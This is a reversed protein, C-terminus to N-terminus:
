RQMRRVTKRYREVGPPPGAQRMAQVVHGARWEVPVGGILQGSWRAAFETASLNGSLVAGIDNLYRGALSAQQFDYVTLTVVDTGAGNAVPVGLFSWQTM